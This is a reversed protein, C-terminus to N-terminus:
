LFIPYFSLFLVGISACMVVIFVLKNWKWVKKGDLISIPIMNFLAFMANVSLGITGVIIIISGVLTTMGNGLILFLIFPICLLLNVVPGSVSIIGEEKITLGRGERTIPNILTAGPAAFVGMNLAALIISILLMVDNKRFEAWFGLKIASYKHAMEHAVFGIGATVLSIGLFILATGFDSIGNHRIFFIGFAFSLAIWAIFLEFEERRTIRELM